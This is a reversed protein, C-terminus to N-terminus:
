LSGGLVLEATQALEDATLSREDNSLGLTHIAALSSQARAQDQLRVALEAQYLFARAQDLPPANPYRKLGNELTKIALDIDPCPLIPYTRENTMAQSGGKQYSIKAVCHDLALL